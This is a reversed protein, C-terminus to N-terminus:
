IQRRPAPDSPDPRFAVVPLQRALRLRAENGGNYHWGALWSLVPRIVFLAWRNRREYEALALVAEPEELVRHVPRFRRRMTALELAPHRQINRYWDASRGMGVLVLLEGVEQDTGITELITQYRRGSRRGIHTLRVFRPGLLWGAHWDYLRAPARLLRRAVPGLRHSV